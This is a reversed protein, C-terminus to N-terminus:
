VGMGGPEKRISDRKLGLARKVQEIRSSGSFVGVFLPDGAEIRRAAAVSKHFLLEFDSSGKVRFVAVRSADTDPTGLIWTLAQQPTLRPM